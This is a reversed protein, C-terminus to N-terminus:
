YGMRYEHMTIVCGRVRDLRRMIIGEEVNIRGHMM